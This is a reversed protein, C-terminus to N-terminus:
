KGIFMQVFIYGYLPSKAIGIGINTFDPNLINNRHGESHMLADQAKEIESNGALNEGASQFHIGFQKMMVFPDGYTPSIHDFYNNKVLDQAKKMAVATLEIDMKLASRGSKKRAANVMSAMLQKEVTFQYISTVPTPARVPSPSPAHTTKKRIPSSSPAHTAKEHGLNNRTVTVTGKEHVTLPKRISSKNVSPSPVSTPAPTSSPIPIRILKVQKESVKSLTVVDNKPDVLPQKIFSKNLSPSPTSTPLPSSNIFVPVPNSKLSAVSVKVKYIKDLKGLFNKINNNDLFLSATLIVILTLILIMTLGLFKQKM